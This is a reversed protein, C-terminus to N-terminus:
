GRPFVGKETLIFDAPRDKEDVPLTKFFFRDYVAFVSTGPFGPLFRDYFGGGYGLREGNKGAALGPLVCLSQATPAPAPIEAPPAPIGFADPRADEPHFLRYFRLKAGECRPLFLPIERSLCDLLFPRLDIEGGIPFYAYVGDCGESFESLRACIAADLEVKEGLSLTRRAATVEARLAAKPDPRGTENM